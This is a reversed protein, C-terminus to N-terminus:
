RQTRRVMEVMTLIGLTLLLVAFGLMYRGRPDVFLSVMVARNVLYMALAVVFPLAGLIMTSAKSESTLARTKVRIERRWRILTSLNELTGALGGGTRRQLTLSVVFFWFDPVRVREASRQLAENMDVGIRMQDLAYRLESGVPAPIESAALAMADLVPLGAKVARVILDLADPFVDLFRRQFRHQGRRMLWIPAAVGAAAALGIVLPPSLGMVGVAFGVAVAVAAAATAVLHLLGISNGTAALEFDLQALLASPVFRLRNERQPRRLSVLSDAPQDDAVATSFGSLRQRLGARRREAALVALFAGGSLLALIIAAFVAPSGM